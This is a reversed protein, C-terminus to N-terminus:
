RGVGGMRSRITSMSPLRGTTAMAMLSLLGFV